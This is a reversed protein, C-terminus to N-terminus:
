LGALEDELVALHGFLVHESAPDARAEARREAREVDPAHRERGAGDPRALVQELEPDRMRLAALLETLRDGRILRDLPHERVTRDLDVRRPEHDVVRGRLEVPAEADRALRRHDLDVGGLERVADGVADQLDM